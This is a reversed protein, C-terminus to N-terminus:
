KLLYNNFVTKILKWLEDANERTVGLQILISIMTGVFLNIWDFKGLDMAIDTLRKLTDKIENQQELLLPVTSLNESILNIKSQLEKYERATFKSNNNDTILRFASIESKLEEWLNPENVEREINNLWNNFHSLVDHWNLQSTIEKYTDVGPIYNAFLSRSYDEDEFFSFCFESDKFEINTVWADKSKKEVIHFQNPSLKSNNSILRFLDNKQSLLLKM